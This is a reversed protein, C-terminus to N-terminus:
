VHGDVGQAGAPLREREPAGERGRRRQPDAPQLAPLSPLSPLSPPFPTLLHRLSKEFPPIFHVCLCVRKERGWRGGGTSVRTPLQPHAPGRDLEQDRGGQLPPLSNLLHLGGGDHQVAVTNDM